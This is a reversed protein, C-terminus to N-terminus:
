RNRTNEKIQDTVNDIAAAIRDQRLIDVEQVFEEDNRFSVIYSRTPTESGELSVLEWDYDHAMNRIDSAFIETVNEITPNTSDFPPIDNLIQNQYRNMYEDILNEVTRFEVFDDGSMIIVFVFEWTHPHVQGPKGNITIFHNMNLYAKLRYERYLRLQSM